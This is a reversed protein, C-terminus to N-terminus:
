LCIWLVIDSKINDVSLHKSVNELRLPIPILESDKAKLKIIETTNVFLYSNTENYHLSLSFKKKIVTFNISYKNKQQSHQIM